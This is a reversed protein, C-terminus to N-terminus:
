AILSVTVERLESPTKELAAEESMFNRNVVFERIQLLMANHESFM